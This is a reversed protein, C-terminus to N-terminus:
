IHPISSYTSQLSTIQMMFHQKNKNKKPLARAPIQTSSCSAPWALNQRETNFEFCRDESINMGSAPSPFKTQGVVIALSHRLTGHGSYRPPLFLAKRGMLHHIALARDDADDHAGDQQRKAEHKHKEKYKDHAM